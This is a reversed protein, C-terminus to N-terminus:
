AHETALGALLERLASEAQPFDFDDLASHLNQLQRMSAPPAGTLLGSLKALADDDIAGRQLSPLLTAAHAHAAASDFRAAASARAAGDAATGAANAADAADAIGAAAPGAPLPRNGDPAGDRIGGRPPALAHIASLAAELQAALARQAQALADAAGDGAAAAADVAEGAAVAATIDAAPSAASGPVDAAPAAEENATGAIAGAQATICLSEIEVLTAALQELGANAAVGRVKHCWAQAEALQAAGPPIGGTTSLLKGLTAAAGSYDAVFRQLAQQYVAEQGGWRHLGAKQNLVRQRPAEVAAPSPVPAALPPLHLVRAIEHSLAQWDVPKSAFGDMGAEISAKRHAALVSATMAVIPVRGGGAAQERERIARTAALGDMLPMQMDMLIVDYHRAASMQLAQAGDTARELTHGRKALLLSLLELNQPVDDAALVHLPPLPYASREGSQSPANRAPELPLMIHFTTGAGPTSEAWIRGGMLGILQRSITTGLGTGGYRRTMSTDAQTFPDFIAELREPAIGIGTDQVAIHLQGQELGARLSVKGAATFKIANDLLNGLVQRMRLEDGHLWAPLAPDYRIDIALGKSRANSGFTSALEDILALLSYDDPELTMAGKDLKATDLIENLLRLLSRGEKRVTDLHRRQEEDLRTDLLVDTFGLIANMPTRIEHSMNALFSARAAAAQEAKEKAQRLEAEMQHRESIDLIVGDIWRIEPNSEDPTVAGHEWMYRRSGDAHMLCYEVQYASLSAISRTIEAAVRERDADCILSGLTRTRHKGVFAGAPYGALREMGDSVFVPPADFAVSSRFSIGPINSILSRFQQESDRLAQMIARRESIDTIFLVYLDREALRAHGLARRIPVTSGDKRLAIVESGKGLIADNNTHLYSLLGDRESREADAMLVRINRGLIEERTWGFIREASANFEHIVGARDITVVGDVTTTLLARMWRESEGQQHYMERYRLLANASLVAVTITVTILTIALALFTSPSSSAAGPPLQGVFRAAAMGTYHMGAIACGMVTASIPGLAGRPLGIQLTRLGFRIWLALTALVVAVVISLAFMLPDYRLALTTELAAMGTYHMAGIGAGVLVGGCVLSANSLRQRSIIAMAVGSAALSPLISLLTIGRDYDVTTCLDFALMGIFHMAWVGCGLALSGSALMGARLGRTRASQSQGAVQLGMWSSFIAVLISLLVLWPSYIGYHLLAPNDPPSFLEMM